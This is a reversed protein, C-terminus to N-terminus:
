HINNLVSTYKLRIIFIYDPIKYDTLYDLFSFGIPHIPIIRGLTSVTLYKMTNDCIM